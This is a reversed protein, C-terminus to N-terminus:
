NSIYELVDTDNIRKKGNIEKLVNNNLLEQVVFNYDKEHFVGFHKFILDKKLQKRITKNRSGLYTKVLSTLNKRRLTINEGALDLIQFLPSKNEIHEGYILDDEERVFNNMLVIGDPHRTCYIFHYKPKKDLSERIPYAVVYYNYRELNQMYEELLINGGEESTLNKPSFKEKWNEGGVIETVLKSDTEATKPNINNSFSACAIRYLGDTDFNIILESVHQTRTLIPKLDSFIVQSPGFPDIFFLTPANGIESLLSDSVQKFTGRVNTLIGKQKWAQTALELSNFTEPNPEVNILKLYAPTRWSLCIDSFKAILLPSGEKGDDYKAAGAFGDVCYIQRNQTISAVKAIFPELYKRLLRHKRESWIKLNEFFKENRM